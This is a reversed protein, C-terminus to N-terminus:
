AAGKGIAEDITGWPSEALLRALGRNMRHPWLPGRYIFATYAQLLSAGALIRRWADEPTEIGGVSVLTLRGSGCRHLRELVELSRPNLPAGSVGGRHPAREIEGASNVALEHRASTNTAVIGDLELSLALEAIQDVAEDTLDPAIKVLLPLGPAVRGLEGRVGEVLASLPELSQMATLGPTNPSSVNLVLYDAHPALLRASARYDAVADDLAVAKTKGINVGVIEGARQDRLRKAVAAAGDNPFGMANLLARDGPLRTIRQGPNGPQGRATVTGVEVFGFGLATLGRFWTAEKDLGAAVGLPTRLRLGLTGVALEESRPGLLRELLAALGPIATLLRLAFAGIRHAREADLRALVTRFFAEYIL